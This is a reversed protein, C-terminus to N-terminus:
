DRTRRDARSAARRDSRRSLEPCARLRAAWAAMSPAREEPRPCLAWAVAQALEPSVGGLLPPDETLRRLDTPEFPPRGALAIYATMGLGYVDTAPSATAGHGVQEPAFFGPTGVQLGARSCQTDAADVIRAVGFDTVRVRGDRDAVLLNSPKLDRHIVGRAHAYAMAEAAEAMWRAREQLSAPRQLRASLDEGEVLEMVLYTWPGSQGADHIRVIGPHDLRAVTRAEDRFRELFAASAMQPRLVKIAVKRGLRLDEALHVAGMGGEGLRGMLTYRECLARALDRTDLPEGSESPVPWGGMPGSGLEAEIRRATGAHGVRRYAAALEAHLKPLEAVARGHAVAELVGILRDTPGNALSGAIQAAFTDLGEVPLAAVAAVAETAAAGRESLSALLDAELRSDLAGGVELLGRVARHQEAPGAAREILARLCRAAEAPRGGARFHRAAPELLGTAEMLEPLPARSARAWREVALAAERHEPALGRARLLARAETPRGAVGLTEAELLVAVRLADLVPGPAAPVLLVAGELSRRAPGAEFRSLHATGEEALREAWRARVEGEAMPRVVAIAAVGLGVTGLLGALLVVPHSAGLALVGVLNAGLLAGEVAPVGTAGARREAWAFAAPYILGWILVALALPGAALELWDSDLPRDFLPGIAGAAVVFPVAWGAAWRRRTKKRSPRVTSALDRPLIPHSAVVPGVRAEVQARRASLAPPLAGDRQELRRLEFLEDLHAIADSADM